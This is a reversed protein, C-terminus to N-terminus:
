SELAELNDDYAKISLDLFHKVTKLSGYKQRVSAEFDKSAAM